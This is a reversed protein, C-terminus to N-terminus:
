IPLVPRSTCRCNIEQGPQIKEGDILCGEAINYRTGDAAVHSPRPHKGAHSHQWIAETIGLELQRTRQVVANAKNSQDRAILAARDGVKPYLEKLEKTMTSLTRGSAYSRSVIGEVQKAYQEPISRILSINETLSADFADRMAPTMRFEVSWGADKLAKRFASDSARFQSRLYAEAIRPAAEDFKAIWREALERMVRNIRDFPSADTAQEVLGTVRPPAKRYAATLWYDYSGVMAAVLAMMRQRYKVELGKNPRIGKAVKPM